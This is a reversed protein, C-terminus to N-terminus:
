CKKYNVYRRRRPNSLLQKKTNIEVILWDHIAKCSSANEESVFITPTLINYLLARYDFLCVHHVFYLYLIGVHIPVAATDVYVPNVFCDLNEWTLKGGRASECLVIHANLVCRIHPYAAAHTYARIHNNVPVDDAKYKNNHRVSLVGLATWLLM